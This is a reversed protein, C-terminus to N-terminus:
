GWGEFTVKDKDVGLKIFDEKMSRMMKVPGCMFVHYNKLELKKENTSKDIAIYKLFMENSFRGKEGDWGEPVERTITYIIQINPNSSLKDLKSKFPFSNTRNSLFLVFDGNIKEEDVYSLISIFPTVGVGGAVFIAKDQGSYFFHGYPGEVWLEDGVHLTSLYNSFLGVVKIAFKLDNSNPSSAVSYFRFTSKTKDNSLPIPNLSELKVFQGAKFLINEKDIPAITLYLIDDDLESKSVVFKKLEM